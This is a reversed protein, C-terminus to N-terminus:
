PIQKWWIQIDRTLWAQFYQRNELKPKWLFWTFVPNSKQWKKGHLVPCSRFDNLVKSLVIDQQDLVPWHLKEWSLVSFWLSLPEHFSAEQVDGHCDPLFFACKLLRAEHMSHILASLLLLLYHHYDYYYHYYVWLGCRSFSGGHSGPFLGHKRDVLYHWTNDSHWCGGRVVWWWNSSQIKQDEPPCLATHYFPCQALFDHVRKCLCLVCCRSWGLTSPLAVGLRLSELRSFQVATWGAHWWVQHLSELFWCVSCDRRQWHGNQLPRSFKCHQRPCPSRRAPPLYGKSLVQTQLNMNLYLGFPLRTLWMSVLIIDILIYCSVLSAQQVCSSSWRMDWM